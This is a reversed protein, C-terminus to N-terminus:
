KGHDTAPSRQKSLSQLGNTIDALEVTYSSMYSKSLTQFAQSAKDYYDRADALKGQATHLKALKIYTGALDAQVTDGTNKKRSLGEQIRRGEQTSKIAEPLNKLLRYAEGINCHTSAIEISLNVNDPDNMALQTWIAISKRFSRLADEPRAFSAVLGQVNYWGALDYRLGSAGPHQKVLEQWTDIGDKVIEPALPVAFVDLFRPGHGSRRVRGRYVGFALSGLEETSAQDRLLGKAIEIGHRGADLIATPNGVEGEVQALRLYTACLEAGVERARKLDKLDARLRKYDAIAKNLINERALQLSPINVLQTESLETMVNKIAEIARRANQDAEKAKENARQRQEEAEKLAIGMLDRAQEAEKKATIAEQRDRNIRYFEFATAAIAAVLLAAATALRLRNRRIYKGLLYRLTPPQATVAEGHEWRDLDQALERASGYRRASDKELCKLVIADLDRPIHPNLRSPREPEAYQVKRMLEHTPMEDTAGFLPQLTLLEYLTAGLSYIDSRPDLKGVALVQEPSAYRLTGVFQRTRTLRGESEDALQALGLDMLVAHQAGATVMINGPKIDRHVVGAEHLVQAALAVQRVIEVVQGIHGALPVVSVREGADGSVGSARPELKRDASLPQESKRADDVATSVARDWDERSLNASTTGGLKTCVSGLDTGEILEMTYFWQDGDSGSTFIKVLHPHEVRGLSQIERRFRTEAKPDGIRLLSKLAVQRGLSPQWARYVIGMAGQGIRSLLEYEGISRRAPMAETPANQPEEAQSRAAWEEFM